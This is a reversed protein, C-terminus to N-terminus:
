PMAVQAILADLDSDLANVSRALADLQRLKQDVNAQGKQKEVLISNVQDRVSQIEKALGMDVANQLQSLKEAVANAIEASRDANSQRLHEAYKQAFAKKIQENTSNVRILGDVFGGGVMVPVLIWPNVAGVVLITATALAIQQVLSVLMAKFGFVGGITATVFNGLLYGGAIALIREIPSMNGMNTQLPIFTGSVQLRLDDLQSLFMSARTDIDRKLDELRGSLFPELESNQWAAFEREVQGSIHETLEKIVREIAGKLKLADQLTVPEKIKYESVWKAIKSDYQDIKVDYLTRYFSRAKDSVHLQMDARFNSVKAVIQHRLTELQQLAGQADAYLTELTTIDTRLMAERQPIIGRAERIANKLEMAPRIIKMRGRESALFKELEKELHPVGSEAVLAGNGSTRGKLAGLANIFFVREAGRATRPALKSLGHQKIDEREDADIMNFRNCIFFIDEHGMSRLTNDIVDIESQSGLVECSLVFLIADVTSLYDMTVKQRIAHENLGPSDIIEVNNRCIELPWLLEVKEYPSGNIAESESVGDQIVVYNQIEEVPIELAPQLPGSDSQIFHLLARRPQGWKVENIIATCPKAYAPLVREGLLANIFTSKGRKFEGLVLVKFNEARIREELRQLTEEWGKMSLSRVAAELRQIINLLTDRKKQFDQYQQNAM